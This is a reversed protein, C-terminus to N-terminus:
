GAVEAYLRQGEETHLVQDYAQAETVNHEKAYNKALTDLQAGASGSDEEPAAGAHGASKFAASLSENQAALAELSRKRAAEDPIADIARLMEVRTDEDGPIHELESARKKLDADAARKQAEQMQKASTDANKAMAVLRPDDRKTYETGDTSTYVVATGEAFKQLDAKRSEESKELFAEQGAEDLNDFYAREEQSFKNIAEAKALRKELDKTAQDTPKTTMSTEGNSSNKGYHRIEPTHGRAEGIVVTGDELRLWPHTHGDTWDTEGSTFEGNGYDLRVLHTHGERETTLLAKKTLEKETSEGAQKEAAKTDRKLISVLAGAQAPSDVGSIENMKFARMIRRTQKTAGPM